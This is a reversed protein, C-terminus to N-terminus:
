EEVVETEEEVVPEEAAPAFGGANETTKPQAPKVAAPEATEALKERWAGEEPNNALMERWKADTPAKGLMDRWGANAASVGAIAAILSFLAIKKM